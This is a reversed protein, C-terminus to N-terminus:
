NFNSNSLYYYFHYYSFYYLFHHHFLLICVPHNLKTQYQPSPHTKLEYPTWLIQIKCDEATDFSFSVEFLSSLLLKDPSIEEEGETQLEESENQSTIRKPIIQLPKPTILLQTDESSESSSITLPNENVDDGIPYSKLTNQNISVLCEVSPVEHTKLTNSEFSPLLQPMDNHIELNDDDIRDSNNNENREENQSVGALNNMEEEYEIEHSFPLNSEERDGDIEEETINRYSPHLNGMKSNRKNKTTNIFKKRLERTFNAIFNGRFEAHIRFYFLMSNTEVNSNLLFLM